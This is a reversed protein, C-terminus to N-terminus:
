TLTGRELYEISKVIAEETGFGGAKTVVRMGDCQGGILEGAPLGPEIEGRVEIASVCLQQCAHIAIDGGSM